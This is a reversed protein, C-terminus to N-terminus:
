YVTMIMGGGPINISGDGTLHGAFPGPRAATYTGPGVETEGVFAQLVRVRCGAAVDITGGTVNLVTTKRGFPDDCDVDLTGGSVNVARAAKWSATSALTLTGSKVSLAGTSTAKGSLTQTGAGNMVFSAEDKIVGSYTSGWGRGVEVAAPWQGTIGGAGLVDSTYQHTRNLWLNGSQLHFQHYSASAGQTKSYVDDRIFEIVGGAKNVWLKRSNGSINCDLILRNANNVHLYGDSRGSQYVPNRFIVTTTKQDSTDSNYIAHKGNLSQGGRFEFIRDTQFYFTESAGMTALGGIVNTVTSADDSTFLADSGDSVTLPVNFEGNHFHVKIRSGSSTISGSGELRGDRVEITGAIRTVAGDIRNTGSFVLTGAGDLTTAGAIITGDNFVLRDGSPITLTSANSVRVPPEFAFVREATGDKAGFAISGSFQLWAADAGKTVTFGTLASGFTINQLYAIDSLAATTGSTITADYYAFPETLPAESPMGDWNAAAAFDDGDEGKWSVATPTDSTRDGLVLIKGRGAIGLTSDVVDYLGRALGVGCQNYTKVRLVSDATPLNFTVGDHSANGVTLAVERRSINEVQEDTGFTLTSKSIGLTKLNPLPDPDATATIQLTRQGSLQSFDTTKSFRAGNYLRLYTRNPHGEGVFDSDRGYFDSQKNATYVNLNDSLRVCWKAYNNNGDDNGLEISTVKAGSNLIEAGEEDPGLYPSFYYYSKDDGARKEFKPCAINQKYGCIDLSGVGNKRHECTFYVGKVSAGRNFVNEVGCLFRTQDIEAWNAVIATSSLKFAGHNGGDATWESATWYGKIIDATTACKIDITYHPAGALIGPSTVAISGTFTAITTNGYTEGIDSTALHLDGAATIAGSLTTPVTDGGAGQFFFGECGAATAGTFAIANAVTGGQVLVRCVKMGDSNVTVAGTGFAATTGAGAALTGADVTVGGEFTNDGRLELTGAGTKRISGAGSIVGSLVLTEGEAVSIETEDTLVRDASDVAARASGAMLMQVVAASVVAALVTLIRKM